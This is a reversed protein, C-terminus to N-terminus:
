SPDATVPAVAFGLVALPAGHGLEHGKTQLLLRYTAEDVLLGGPEHGADRAAIVLGRADDLLAAISAGEEPRPVVLWGPGGRPEAGLVPPEDAERRPASM